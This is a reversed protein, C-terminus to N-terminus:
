LSLLRTLYSSESVAGMLHTRQYPLVFNWYLHLHQVPALRFLTDAGALFARAEVRVEDIFGRHFRWEQVRGALPRAWEEGYRELLERQRAELAPREPGAAGALACQVRIFEAREAQRNEELWDAYVLRPTDDDPAACVARLFAEDRTM